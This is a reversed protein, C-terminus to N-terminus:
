KLTTAYLGSSMAIRQAEDAIWGAVISAPAPFLPTPAQVRRAYAVYSRVTSDYSRRTSPALGHWLLRAETPSGGVIQRWDTPLETLRHCDKHKRPPPTPQPAEACQTAWSPGASGAM